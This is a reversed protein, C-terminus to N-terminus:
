QPDCLNGNAAAQVPPSAQNIPQNLAPNLLPPLPGPGWAGWWCLAGVLGKM